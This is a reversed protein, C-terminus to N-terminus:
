QAATWQDSEMLNSICTKEEKNVFVTDQGFKMVGVYGRDLLWDVTESDKIGYYAEGNGNLELCITPHFKEITREAGRLAMLEFGEIDLQILDCADLQLSDITVTQFEDGDVLYHAGCNDANRALGKSEAKDGLAAEFLTVNEALVNRKFCQINLSDPEFTVVREFYRAMERPWLGVNGGAQVAVKREGVQTVLHKIHQVSIPTNAKAAQDRSPWWVGDVEVMETDPQNAFQTQLAVWPLLGTGHVTITCDSSALIRALEQFQNAQHVMWPAAKFNRGYCHADLVIEGDNSKQEYAHHAGDEYSSDMGFLHLTRYGLAYAIGMTSLGVTSGCAVLCEEKKEPNEVTGELEASHCHFLTVDALSMLADDWTSPHCQSALFVTDRPGGPWIFSRNEERADVIVQFDPHIGNEILFGLTNNTAFVHAGLEQWNKLQKLQGKLSPAGGVIVAHSSHQPAESLWPVDRKCASRINEKIKEAAVNCIMLLDDATGGGIRWVNRVWEVGCNHPRPEGHFYVVMANKPPAAKNLSELKFSYFKEPYLAQLLDPREGVYKKLCYQIWVQDGGEFEPRGEENWKDWIEPYAGAEWMMVGSNLVNHYCRDQLMAFKGDYTLLPDLLGTIVLDLDFYIVRDGKPFAESSFLYLKGWWSKLDAPLTEVDIGQSLGDPDDTFCVFRGPTGDTLNRRVMDFLINVYEAGYKTGSKVCCVNVM